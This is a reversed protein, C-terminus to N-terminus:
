SCPWRWSCRFLVCRGYLVGDNEVMIKLLRILTLKDEARRRELDNSIYTAGRSVEEAREDLYKVVRLKKAKLNSSAGTRVLSTVPSGPDSFLPGPFLASKPELAYEPLVKHLERITVSTTRRTSLAVDFGTSLDSSGHFCTLLKGGFGFSVVPARASVRGLPDNSGLLSPSPAYPPRSASIHVDQGFHHTASGYSGLEAPYAQHGLGYEHEQLNDYTVSSSSFVSGNSSSRGRLQSSVHGVVTKAPAYSDTAPSQSRHSGPSVTREPHAAFNPNYHRAVVNHSGLGYSNPAIGQQNNLSHISAASTSRHHSAYPSSDYSHAAAAPTYTADHGHMEVANRLPSSVRNVPNRTSSVSSGNSGNSGTKAHMSFPVPSTRENLGVTNQRHPVKARPPSTPVSTTSTVNDSVGVLTDAAVSEPSIGQLMSRSGQSSQHPLYDNMTTQGNQMSVALLGNGLPDPGSSSFGGELGGELNDWPMDDSTYLANAELHQQQESAVDHVQSAVQTLSAPHSFSDGAPYQHLSSGEMSIKSYAEQYTNSRHSDSLESPPVQHPHRSEPPPAYQKPPNLATHSHGTHTTQTNNHLVSRQSSPGSPPRAPSAPPAPASGYKANGPISPVPPVPPPSISQQGHVPYSQHGVVPSESRPARMSAARKSVRPPPLPPDYANSTKPRYSTVTTTQATSSNQPPPPLPPAAPAVSASAYPSSVSRSIPKHAEYSSKPQSPVFPHQPTYANSSSAITANDNTRAPAYSLAPSEFAQKPVSSPKYPDYDNTFTNRSAVWPM